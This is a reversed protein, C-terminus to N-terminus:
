RGTIRNKKKHKKSGAEAPRYRYTTKTPYLISSDAGAGVFEDLVKRIRIDRIGTTLKGDSFTGAGGEGFQVNSEPDLMGEAWFREVDKIREDVPAGREIVLPRMGAEALMLAAFMGCPGFGAIVPRKGTIREPVPFHYVEVPAKDLPLDADSDFDVTYVLRIDPKRRADISERVITINRIVPKTRKFGQRIEKEIIRYKGSIDDMDSITGVNIKIQHIRYRM